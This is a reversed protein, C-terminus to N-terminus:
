RYFFGRRWLMFCLRFISGGGLELLWRLRLLPVLLYDLLCFGIEVVVAGFLGDVAYLQCQDCCECRIM